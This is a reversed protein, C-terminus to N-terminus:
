HIEKKNVLRNLYSIGNEHTAEALASINEPPVDPLIAEHSPSIILNPGLLSRVRRVESKVEEPSGNPMIGQADIGGLFAIQGGFDLALTAADMNRAQAQLPHLCDIGVEILRAVVRHISGCSHLIVQKGHRHGQDVFTKLWPMVFEDFLQPSIILDRQTGFDNGFFCAECLDGAERYFVENADYYFQCVRDTAAHVVDPHDYMKMLYNQM